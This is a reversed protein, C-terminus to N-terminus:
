YVTDKPKKKYDKTDMKKPAEAAQEPMKQMQDSNKNVGFTDILQSPQSFEEEFTEEYEAQNINESSDQNSSEAYANFSLLTTVLATIIKKM